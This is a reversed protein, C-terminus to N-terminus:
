VEATGRVYTAGPKSGARGSCKAIRWRWDAPTVESWHLWVRWQCPLVGGLDKVTKLEGKYVKEIVM